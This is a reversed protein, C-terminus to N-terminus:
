ELYDGIAKCLIALVAFLVIFPMMAVMLSPIHGNFGSEILLYWLEILNNFM